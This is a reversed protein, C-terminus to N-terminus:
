YLSHGCIGPRGGLLIKVEVARQAFCAVTKFFRIKFKVQDAFAAGHGAYCFFGTQLTGVKVALQALEAPRRSHSWTLLAAVEARRVGQRRPVDALLDLVRGTLSTSPGRGDLEAAVARAVRHGIWFGSGDDGLLWGLGDRVSSM